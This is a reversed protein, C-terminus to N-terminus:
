NEIRFTLGSEEALMSLYEYLSQISPDNFYNDLSEQDIFHLESVFECHDRSELVLNIKKIFGQHNFLNETVDMYMPHGYVGEIFKRISLMDEKNKSNIIIKRVFM